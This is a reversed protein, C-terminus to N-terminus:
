QASPVDTYRLTYGDGSFTFGKGSLESVCSVGADQVNCRFAAAALVKNFPLVNPAGSPPTLESQPISAFHADGDRELVLANPAASVGDPTPVSDPAGAIGLGAGGAGSCGARVRPVIACQWRGSPTTFYYGTATATPDDGRGAYDFANVLAANDPRPTVPAVAPEGSKPPAADDTTVVPGATCGAVGLAAAALVIVHIVRM